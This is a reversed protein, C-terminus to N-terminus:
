WMEKGVPDGTDWEKHASPNNYGKFLETLSSPLRHSPELILSGKKESITLETGAHICLKDCLVKPIRVGLANGWTGVATKVTM